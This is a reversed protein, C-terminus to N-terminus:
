LPVKNFEGTDLGLNQVVKDLASVESEYRKKRQKYNEDDEVYKLNPNLPGEDENDIHYKRRLYYKIDAVLEITDYDERADIRGASEEIVAKFEPDHLYKSLNASIIKAVHTELRQVRTKWSVRLVDYLSIECEDYNDIQTIAIAAMTKLRDIFLSDALMLTDIALVTPIDVTDFYLFDLIIEVLKSGRIQLEESSLGDICQTVSSVPLSLVPIANPNKLFYQRDIIGEDELMTDLFLSTEVFSSRFLTDFYESRSLIARHVPYFLYHDAVEVCLIVDAGNKDIFHRKEDPSLVNKYADNNTIDIVTDDNNIKLSVNIKRVIMPQIIQQTVFRKLKGRAISCIQQQVQNKVRSREAMTNAVYIRKVVSALDPLHVDEALSILDDIDIDKLDLKPVLYIYDVLFKWSRVNHRNCLIDQTSVCFSSDKTDSSSLKEWFYDSIVMLMFRHIKMSEKPLDPFTLLADFSVFKPRLLIGTIHSAFPQTVDVAKTIDYSLLISRISDNLAGYIARSGEFTDRSVICGKELLLKVINEHGCISALILPSYDWEDMQNLNIGTAIYKDALEIDGKRCATCLERFEKSLNYNKAFHGKAWIDM